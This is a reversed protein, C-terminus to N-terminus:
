LIEVDSDLEEKYSCLYVDYLKSELNPCYFNLTMLCVIGDILAMWEMVYNWVWDRFKHEKRQPLYGSM